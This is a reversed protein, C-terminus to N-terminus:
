SSGTTSAGSQSQQLSTRRLPHWLTVSRVPVSASQGDHHFSKHFPNTQPRGPNKAVAKAHRQAPRLSFAPVNRLAQVRRDIRVCVACPAASNSPKSRSTTGGTKRRHVPHLTGVSLQPIPPRLEYENPHRSNDV